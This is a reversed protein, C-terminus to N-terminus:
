THWSLELLEEDSLHQWCDPYSRVRRFGTESEFILSPASDSFSIEHVRWLRGEEDTIMRARNRKASAIEPTSQIPQSLM